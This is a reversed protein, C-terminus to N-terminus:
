VRSQNPTLPLSLYVYFIGERAEIKLQHNEPYLLQLRQRINQIGIGGPKQERQNSFTNQLTFSLRENEWNVAGWIRFVGDTGKGGHKFCNEVFPLLILPAIRYAPPPEPFDLELVLKEGYRLKELELYHQILRIEQQLSVRDKSGHYLSYDLLASLKLIGPAVKESQRLALGYLNNLTNFLFHPNLQAKLLAIEMESKSQQLQRNIRDKHYWDAIIQLCVAFGVVAYDRIVNKFIKPPPTRHFTGEDLYNIWSVWYSRAFFLVVGVGLVGLWFAWLRQQQLFRPVLFGSIFYTGGLMFPLSLLINRLLRQREWPAYHMMNALYDAFIYLGWLVLHVFIVRIPLRNM